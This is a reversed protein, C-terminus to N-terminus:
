LLGLERARAVAETRRQVQLKGFINQNHGKVSSLALFLRESIERNSLGQAILQLVTLERESLPAILTKAPPAPRLGSECEALLKSIYDPMRGHAAAESLLGVMRIGEDVFIRIFGGPEALLLAEGLLQVARDMDGHEHLAVAQLVIVKLRADEWGKAEAQRRMPELVALAAATDGQALHVRALSGPLEHTQALQAAAALNGQRLLVLVQTAAVEPMQHRFNHQRVLQSTKALSAAADAVDGQALKLRALVVECSIFRDTNEIQRALQASQQGHQLAADMENREYSIRALGLHAECAVPLPPDGALQLVLRYTDVALDLQNDAEQLNGLGITAMITIINHGIAQSIGIAETYAQSAAARDGQLHYAYGLTWITATRVPLNDTHLYELARRSQTIITEVQHQSVALTARILAIHGVHDRTKDNLEAGQLAAEAARLKQEVGNLKGAFVLASAYAVWLSPRADLVATQLSELWNLVPAAAGRFHLPMGKGEILRTARDVDNAVAAHHFAEIELDHNEYWISARKHLEAVGRGEDGKSSATAQHLRQRLLDAFLHHYRYWHRDNDLSVIFLNARELYALTELGSTSPDLLVADALSGCLRDLISTCLLFAHVSESQQQLVEEVLYDLVFHHNGNFSKIFSTADKHGQLSIAVLQLGAIWGETRSELLAIDVPSLNLGMAQNLFGAAESPTFRLDTSRLETLEGRVRLRALPISPDERTTIVLHMRPPLHELLFTLVDDISKTEIVHYDDLVLTFHDPITNIENLLVTLITETPPSLPSQLVAFVGKGINAAITQLAAVLYTLFRTPDNDGEDLSLWAAPQGCGALWESVLTTKGFGASASILTLKRHLGENLRESLRPRIVVNSRPPPMYLKTSIIPITM